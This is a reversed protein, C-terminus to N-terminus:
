FLREGVVIVDGAAIKEDLKVKLPKGGKHTVKVGKDSGLDTLGGGRAIAQRLTMDVTLPYTGPAKVQGSIYFFEAKPAFVKDGPAILPDAADGGTALDAIALRRQSGKGPTLTVYDAATDRVGGVQALIDSLHSPRSVPVLGPKNVEGLVTVYRSAYEVIDVQMIPNTFYGGAQLAKKVEAALDNSTMNAAKVAGIYPLQINGDQGIKAKAKFDARGIVDVEVVDEPGLIYSADSVGAPAASAAQDAPAPQALVATPAALILCLGLAAKGLLTRFSM